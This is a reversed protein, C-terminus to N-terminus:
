ESIYLEMFSTVASFLLKSNHNLGVQRPISAFAVCIMLIMFLQSIWIDPSIDGYGVTSFTVIVFYMAEFMSLRNGKSARQLHQMFCISFYIPFM